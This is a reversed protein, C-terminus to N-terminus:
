TSSNLVSYNSDIRYVNESFPSRKFGLKIPRFIDTLKSFNDQSFLSENHSFRVAKSRTKFYYDAREASGDIWGLRIAERPDKPKPRDLKRAVRFKVFM